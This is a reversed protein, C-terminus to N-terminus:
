VGSTLLYPESNPCRPQRIPKEFSSLKSGPPRLAVIGAAKEAEQAAARFRENKGTKVDDGAFAPSGTAAQRM